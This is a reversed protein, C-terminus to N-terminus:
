GGGMAPRVEAPGHTLPLQGLRATTRVKAMDSGFTVGGDSACQAVWAPSLRGTAANAGRQVTLREM